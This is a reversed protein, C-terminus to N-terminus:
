RALQRAMSRDCRANVNTAAHFSMFWFKTLEVVFVLSTWSIFGNAAARVCGMAGQAADTTRACVVSQTTIRATTPKFGVVGAAACM